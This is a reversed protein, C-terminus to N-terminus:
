KKLIADFSSYFGIWGKEGEDKDDDNCKDDYDEYDNLNIPIMQKLGESTRVRAKDCLQARM